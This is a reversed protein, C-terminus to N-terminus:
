ADETGKASTSPLAGGVVAVAAPRVVVPAVVRAGVARAAIVVAVAARPVLRGGVAVLPPVVRVASTAVVQAAPAPGAVVGEAAGAAVLRVFAGPIVVVVVVVVRGGKTPRGPVVRVPRRAAVAEVVAAAPVVIRGVSRVVLARVAGASAVVVVVVVRVSGAISLLRARARAVAGAGSVVVVVVAVAAGVRAAAAAAAAIAVVGVARGATTAVVGVVAVPAIGVLQPVTVVALERPTSVVVELLCSSPLSPPLRPGLYSQYSCLVSLQIFSGSICHSRLRVEMLPAGSVMSKDILFRSPATGGAYDKAEVFYWAQGGTWGNGAVM